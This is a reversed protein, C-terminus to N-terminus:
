EATVTPSACTVVSELPRSRSPRFCSSEQSRL